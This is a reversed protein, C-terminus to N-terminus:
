GLAHALVQEAREYPPAAPIRVLEYGLAEYVEEHVKGFKLTDEFSIRRVETNEIFGLTEILFVQREYFRERGIRELEAALALSAARGLYIELARTCIPSRDLFLFDAAGAERERRRQLDLIEDIFSPSTWPEAHGKAMMALNVDTAAEETVAHGLSKLERIISTKGAGPAGTLIFRKM